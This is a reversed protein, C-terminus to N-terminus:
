IIENLNVSKFTKKIEESEKDTPMKNEETPVVVPSRPIQKNKKLADIESKAWSLDSQGSKRTKLYKYLRVLTEADFNNPDALLEKMESIQEDKLGYRSKLEMNIAKEQEELLKRQREEEIKKQQEVVARKVLYEQYARFYKTSESNEDELDLISFNEPKQPIELGYEDVNRSQQKETGPERIGKVEEALKLLAKINPDIDEAKEVFDDVEPLTEKEKESEGEKQKEEPETKEAEVQERNEIQEKETGEPSTESEQIEGSEREQQEPSMVDEKTGKLDQSLVEDLDPM